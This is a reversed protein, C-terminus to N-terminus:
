FCVIIYSNKTLGLILRRFSPNHEFKTQLSKSIFLWKQLKLYTSRGVASLGCRYSYIVWSERPDPAGCSKISSTLIITPNEAAQCASMRPVTILLSYIRSEM